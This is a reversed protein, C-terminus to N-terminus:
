TKSKIDTSINQRLAIWGFAVMALAPVIFDTGKAPRLCGELIAARAIPDDYGEIVALAVLLGTGGFLAWSLWWRNAKYAFGILALFLLVRSTFSLGIPGSERTWGEGAIKDCVEALAASATLVSVLLTGAVLAGTLPPRPSYVLM